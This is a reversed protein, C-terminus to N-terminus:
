PWLDDEEDEDEAELERALEPVTQTLSHVLDRKLADQELGEIPDSAIVGAIALRLSERLEDLADTDVIDWPDVLDGSVKILRVGRAALLQAGDGYVDETYMVFAVPLEPLDRLSELDMEPQPHLPANAIAVLEEYTEM